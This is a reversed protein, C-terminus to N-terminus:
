EVIVPITAVMRTQTCRMATLWGNVSDDFEVADIFNSYKNSCDRSERAGDFATYNDIENSIMKDRNARM